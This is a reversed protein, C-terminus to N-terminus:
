LTMPTNDPDHYYLHRAAPVFCHLEAQTFIEGSGPEAM